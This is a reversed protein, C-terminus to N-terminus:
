RRDLPQHRRTVKGELEKPPGCHRSVRPLVQYWKRDCRRPSAGVAGFAVAAVDLLRVPENRQPIDDIVFVTVPGAPGIALKSIISNVTCLDWAFAVQDTVSRRVTGLCIDWTEM